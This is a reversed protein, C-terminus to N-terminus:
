QEYFVDEMFDEAEAFDSGSLDDLGCENQFNTLMDEKADDWNRANDMYSEWNEEVWSRITTKNESSLALTIVDRATYFSASPQVLLEHM